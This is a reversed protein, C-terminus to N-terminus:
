GCLSKKNRLSEKLATITKSIIYIETSSCDNLTESVEGMLNPLAAIVNDMLLYDPTTQLSNALAVLCVLSFPAKGNEIKSLHQIGIGVMEALVEQTLNLSLRKNKIRKGISKYDLNHEM